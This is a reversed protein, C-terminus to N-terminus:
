SLARLSIKLLDAERNIDLVNMFQDKNRATLSCNSTLM